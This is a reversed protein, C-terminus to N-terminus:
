RITNKQAPKKHRDKLKETWPRRPGGSGDLTDHTVEVNELNYSNGSMFHIVPLDLPQDPILQDTSHQFVKASAQNKKQDM